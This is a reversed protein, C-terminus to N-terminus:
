ALLQTWHSWDSQSSRCPNLEQWRRPVFIHRQREAMLLKLFTAQRLRELENPQGRSVTRHETSFPISVWQLPEIELVRLYPREKTVIRCDLSSISVRAPSAFLPAQAHFSLFPPSSYPFLPTISSSQLSAVKGSVAPELSDPRSASM